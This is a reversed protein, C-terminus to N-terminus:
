GATAACRRSSPQHADVPGEVLVVCGRRASATRRISTPLLSRRRREGSYGRGSADAVHPTVLLARCRNSPAGEARQAGRVLTRLVRPM